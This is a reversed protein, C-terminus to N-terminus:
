LERAADCAAKFEEVVEKREAPSESTVSGRLWKGERRSRVNIASVSLGTDNLLSRLVKIDEFDQPYCLEVGEVGPVQVAIELKERLSRNPQYQIYRNKVGGLFATIISIRNM